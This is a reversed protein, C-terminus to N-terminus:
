VGLSFTNTHVYYHISLFPSVRKLVKDSVSDRWLVNLDENITNFPAMYLLYTFDM